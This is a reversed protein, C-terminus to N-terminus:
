RQIRRKISASFKDRKIAIRQVYARTTAVNAHDLAEQTEMMSGSDESFIRAFTHRTQHLHFGKLKATQAYHKLNKVFAHSSLPAGARGARDHRTWVPRESGLVNTRGSFTLYDDIAEIADPDAVERGIYRGGKRKYKILLKDEVVEVDKGRLSIIEARRLGSLFYLLLLAYDRKCVMSGEDADKKVVKLLRNMEDDTLSKSSEAQYPPPCKPRALIVPNGRLHKGLIPDSLLWNYFSSLRSLRAYVTNPKYSSELHRRWALCDRTRISFPHKVTFSFFSLVSSQKDHQLDERRYSLSGTTKEAWAELAALIAQDDKVSYVKKQPLARKVLSTKLKAQRKVRVM